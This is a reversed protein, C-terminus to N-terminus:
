RVRQRWPMANEKGPQTYTSCFFIVLSFSLIAYSETTRTTASTTPSLRELASKKRRENKKTHEHKPTSM